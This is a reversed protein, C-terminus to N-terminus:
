KEPPSSPIRSGRPTVRGHAPRSRRSCLGLVATVAIVLFVAPLPGSLLGKEPAGRAEARVAVHERWRATRATRGLGIIEAGVVGVVEGRVSEVLSSAAPSTAIQAEM